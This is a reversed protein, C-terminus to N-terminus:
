CQCFNVWHTLGRGSTRIGKRFYLFNPTHTTSVTVMTLFIIIITTPIMEMFIRGACGVCLADWSVQFGKVGSAQSLGPMIHCSPMCCSPPFGWKTDPKGWHNFFFLLGRYNNDALLVDTMEIKWEAWNAFPRHCNDDVPRHQTLTRVVHRVTILHVATQSATLPMVHVQKDRWMVALHACPM